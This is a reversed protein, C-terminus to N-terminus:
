YLKSLMISLVVLLLSGVSQGSGSVPHFGSYFGGDPAPECAVTFDGMVVSHNPGFFHFELVDGTHAQITDPDFVFGGNEGFNIVTTKAMATGLVIAMALLKPLIRITPM